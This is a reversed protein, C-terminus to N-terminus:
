PGYSLFPFLFSPLIVGNKEDVKQAKVKQLIRKQIQFIDFSMKM